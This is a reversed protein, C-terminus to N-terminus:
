WSRYGVARVMDTVGASFAWRRVRLGPREIGVQGRQLIGNAQVLVSPLDRQGRRESTEHDVSERREILRIQREYLTRWIDHDGATYREWQQPVTYDAAAQSYDGRLEVPNQTPADPRKTM